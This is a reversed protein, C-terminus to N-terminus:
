VLNKFMNSLTEANVPKEKYSEVAKNIMEIIDIQHLIMSSILAAQAENGKARINKNNYDYLYIEGYKLFNIQKDTIIVEYLNNERKNMVSIEIM